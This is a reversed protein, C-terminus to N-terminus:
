KESVEPSGELLLPRRSGSCLSISAKRTHHCRPQPDCAVAKGVRGSVWGGMWQALQQTPLPSSTAEEPATALDPPLSKCTFRTGICLSCQYGVSPDATACASTACDSPWTTPTACSRIHKVHYRLTNSGPCRQPVEPFFDAGRRNAHTECPVTLHCVQSVEAPGQPYVDNNRGARRRAEICLSCQYGM